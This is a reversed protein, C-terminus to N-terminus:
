RGNEPLVIVTHPINTVQKPEDPTVNLGLLKCRAEICKLIIAMWRPDGDRKNSVITIDPQGGRGPSPRVVTKVKRTMCSRDFAEHAEVQVHLLRAYEDSRLQLIEETAIKARDM